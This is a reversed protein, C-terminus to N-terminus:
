SEVDEGGVYDTTETTRQEEPTNNTEVVKTAKKTKSPKLQRNREEHGDSKMELLNRETGVKPMYYKAMYEDMDGTKKNLKAPRITSEKGIKSM